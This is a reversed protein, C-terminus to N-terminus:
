KKSVRKHEHPNPHNQLRGHDTFDFTHFLVLSRYLFNYIAENVLVSRPIWLRNKEPLYARSSSNKTIIKM